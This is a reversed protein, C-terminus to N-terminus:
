TSRCHWHPGQGAVRSLEERNQEHETSGVVLAGGSGSSFARGGETQARLIGEKTRWSQERGEGQLVTRWSATM